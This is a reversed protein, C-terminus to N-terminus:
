SSKKSFITLATPLLEFLVYTRWALGPLLTNLLLADRFVWVAVIVAPAFYTLISYSRRVARVENPGGEAAKAFLLTLVLTVALAADVVGFWVPFKSIDNRSALLLIAASICFEIGSLAVLVGAYRALRNSNASGSM